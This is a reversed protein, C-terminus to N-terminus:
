YTRTYNIRIFGDTKTSDVARCQQKQDSTYDFQTFSKDSAIETTSRSQDVTMGSSVSRSQKTNYIRQSNRKNMNSRIISTIFHHKKNTSTFTSTKLTIKSCIQSIKDLLFSSTLFLTKGRCDSCQWSNTFELEMVCHQVTCKLRILVPAELLRLLCSSFFYFKGRNCRM